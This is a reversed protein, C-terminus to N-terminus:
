KTPTQAPTTPLSSSPSIASQTPTPALMPLSYFPDEMYNQSSTYDTGLELIIDSDTYGLDIYKQPIGEVEKGPILKKLFDLTLPRSDIQEGKEDLKIKYYYTTQSFDKKEANGFKLINFCFRQLIQKTEGAVGARLTGNLIQIKSNEKAIASFGFILDAYKHITEFGGAPVLVFAGGYYSREPTYLFGGCRTPDDHILRTIISDKSYDKAISGLTLIEEITINTNINAKIIELINSIKEKSFIINAKLASEKIAMILQQQRKSRDFDSTTERSRAYKLATKGNLHQLGKPM